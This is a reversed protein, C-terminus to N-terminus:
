RHCAHPPLLVQFHISDELLEVTCCNRSLGAVEITVTLGTATQGWKYMPTRKERPQDTPKDDMEDTVDEIVVMTTRLHHRPPATTTCFKASEVSKIQFFVALLYSFRRLSISSEKHWIIHM